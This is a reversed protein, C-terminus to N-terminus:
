YELKPSQLFNHVLHLGKRSITTLPMTPLTEEPFWQGASLKRSTQGFWIGVRFCDNVIRHTFDGALEARVKPLLDKGPLEWFGALRKESDGRRVLLIEGKRRLVLLDLDIERVAPKVPRVPLERERGAARAECHRVVPCRECRPVGPVCITAGLEMMAQNFDGPREPDLLRQAEAPVAGRGNTLRSVVRVVNGDVAAHPEGLVISAIAAATYPGVGPLAIVEAYTSPMTATALRAAKHLNRARSYYGLGSWATLVDSEPAEALAAVTPFRELFRHYYPIAAEVRTQQLM